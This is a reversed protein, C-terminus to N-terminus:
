NIQDEPKSNKNHNDLAEEFTLGFPVFFIGKDARKIGEKCAQEAEYAAEEKANKIVEEETANYLVFSDTYTSYVSYLGNPQKIIQRAM